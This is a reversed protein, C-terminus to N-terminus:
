RPPVTGKRSTGRTQWYERLVALTFQYIGPEKSERSGAVNLVGMAHADLFAALQAATELISDLGAPKGTRHLHLCPRYAERAFRATLASGGVLESQLTVIVTADSEEVNRRTRVPYSTSTLETLQYKEDIRGDEARRGKPVYGGHELGAELAFDLGARDAGTQGGSVIKCLM